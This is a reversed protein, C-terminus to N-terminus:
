GAAPVTDDADADVVTAKRFDRAKAAVNEKFDTGATRGREAGKAAGEKMVEPIAEELIAAVFQAAFAAAFGVGYAGQSSAKKAQAFANEAVERADVRGREFAKKMESVMKDAAKQAETKVEEAEPAANQPDHDNM